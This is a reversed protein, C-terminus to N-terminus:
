NERQQEPARFAIQYREPLPLQTRRAGRGSRQTQGEATLTVRASMADRNSRSGALKLEIWNGAVGRNLLLTPQDDLSSVVIDMCGMATLTQSPREM